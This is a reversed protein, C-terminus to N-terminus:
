IEYDEKLRFKNKIQVLHELGVDTLEYHHKTTTSTYHNLWGKNVWKLYQDHIEHPNIKEQQHTLLLTELNNLKEKLEENDSELQKIKDEIPIVQQQEQKKLEKLAMGRLFVEAGALALKNQFRIANNRVEESVKKNLSYYAVTIILGNADLQNFKNLILHQKCSKVFRSITGKSLCLIKEIENQSIWSKGNKDITYNTNPQKNTLSSITNNEKILNNM